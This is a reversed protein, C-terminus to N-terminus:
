FLMLRKVTPTVSSAITALFSSGSNIQGVSIRISPTRVNKALRFGLRSNFMTGILSGKPGAIVSSDRSALLSVKTRLKM